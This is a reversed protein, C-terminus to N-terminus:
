IAGGSSAAISPGPRSADARWRAIEALEATPAEVSLRTEGAFVAGSNGDLCLTEGEALERDGIFCRRRAVDVRLGPCGVLCVKGLERAVVAAHSTRGGAATLVGASAALGAVDETSIDECSSPLGDPPPSRRRTPPM